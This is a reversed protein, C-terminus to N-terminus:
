VEKCWKALVEGAGVVGLKEKVAWAVEDLTVDVRFLRTGMGDGGLAEDGFKGAVGSGGLRSVPVIVEWRALEEWAGRATDKSWPRLGTGTVGSGSGKTLSLSSLTSRQLRTRTLLEIYHSHVLGFDLAMVNHVMELRTACILLSLHLTPLHPLLTLLSPPSSTTAIMAPPKTIEQDGSLAEQDDPPVFLTAIPIYLAALVDPISKTSYFTKRIVAQTTPSSLFRTKITRNWRERWELGDKSGGLAVKEDTPMCLIDSVVDEFANLTKTGPVHLWRHSFRSKVRKELCEVVDMRTSCGLVAIPAKKAQAIDFLNYLLTQRPHTTFLDFEDLIFIVSKSTKTERQQRDLVDNDHDLVMSDPDALEEPHSLLSLLSAMTDAYSSVEGTEDEPIAMERGLQRWIERLALKDDTQFFGNLRVVHFDDAHSKALDALAHSILASKGSGRSGLLLLSNSEGAAITATLLSRLTTYQSQLHSIPSPGHSTIRSLIQSKINILHENEVDSEPTSLQAQKNVPTKSRRSLSLIEDVDPVPALFSEEDENEDEDEILTKEHATANESEDRAHLQEAQRVMSGPSFRKAKDKEKKSSSNIDKFGLQEQIRREDGEFVVAKGPGTRKELGQRSPTLIGKPQPLQISDINGNGQDEDPHSKSQAKRTSKQRSPTETGNLHRRTPRRARGSSRPLSVNTEQNEHEEAVDQEQVEEPTHEATLKRKNQGIRAKNENDTLTPDTMTEAAEAEAKKRGGTSRRPTDEPLKPNGAVIVDKSRGREAEGDAPDGVDRDPQQDGDSNESAKKSKKAPQSSITSLTTRRTAYTGTRRRKSARPSPDWNEM